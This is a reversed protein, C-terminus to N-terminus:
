SHDYDNDEAETARSEPACVECLLEERMEDNIRLKVPRGCWECLPRDKLGGAPRRTSKRDNARNM